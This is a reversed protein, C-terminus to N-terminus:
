CSPYTFENGVHDDEHDLWSDDKMAADVRSELSQWYALGFRKIISQEFEQETM